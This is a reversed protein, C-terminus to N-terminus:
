RQHHAHIQPESEKLCIDGILSLAEVQEEVIKKRYDKKALDFFVLTVSQLAGIVTFHSVALKFERAVKIL